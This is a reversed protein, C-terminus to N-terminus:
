FYPRSYIRKIEKQSKERVKQMYPRPATKKTGNELMRGLVRGGVSYTSVASCHVETNSGVGEFHTEARWSPRFNGKRNAPAEGPASARYLVGGRLKHGYEKMMARTSKSLRKGYTGPIKYVRGHRTGRLVLQTKNYLVMAASFGRGIMQNTIHSMINESIVEIKAAAEDM